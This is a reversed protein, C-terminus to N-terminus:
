SFEISGKYSWVKSVNNYWWIHSDEELLCDKFAKMLNDLDPRQQHPMGNMEAKKKKSWSKPMEISFTLNIISGNEFEEEINIGQEKILRNLKKKYRWYDEVVRRGRWADSKVMRPKPKPNIDLRIM